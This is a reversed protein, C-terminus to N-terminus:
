EGAVVPGGFGHMRKAWQIAVLVGKLRPLLYLSLAVTGVSFVAALTLPEPRWHTFVVMILPAMLHGVILITLYAPGDDARQHHFEEACVPCSERVKLYGRLLPGSGCCPCRRRWGRRLAPWFPREEESLDVPSTQPM